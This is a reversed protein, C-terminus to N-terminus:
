KRLSCVEYNNFYTDINEILRM